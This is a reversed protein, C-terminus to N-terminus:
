SSGGEGRRTLVEVSRGGGGGWTGKVDGMDWQHYKHCQKRLTIIVIVKKLWITTSM